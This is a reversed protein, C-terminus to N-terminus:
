LFVRLLRNVALLVAVNGAGVLCKAIGRFIKLEHDYPVAGAEVGASNSARRANRSPAIAHV